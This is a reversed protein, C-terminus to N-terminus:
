FYGSLLSQGDAPQEQRPQQQQQVNLPTRQHDIEDVIQPYDDLLALRLEIFARPHSSRYLFALFDRCRSSSGRVQRLDYYDAESIIKKSFLVDIANGPNVDKTIRLHLNRFVQKLDENEM